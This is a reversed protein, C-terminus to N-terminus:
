YVGNTRVYEITLKRVLDPGLQRAALAEAYDAVKNAQSVAMSNPSRAKTEAM